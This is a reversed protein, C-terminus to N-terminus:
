GRQTASSSDHAPAKEFKSRRQSRAAPAAVDSESPGDSASSREFIHSRRQQNRAPSNKSRASHLEPNSRSGFVTKREAPM